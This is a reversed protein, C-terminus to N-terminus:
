GDIIISARIHARRLQRKILHPVNIKELMAHCQEYNGMKEFSEALWSYAAQEVRVWGILNASNVISEFKSQAGRYDKLGHLYVGHQYDLPIKFRSQMRPSLSLFSDPANLLVRSEKLLKEFRETSLPRCRQRGQECMNSLRIALRLRLEAFIAIVDMNEVTMSKLFENDQIIYSAEQVLKQAKNLSTQTNQSTLVWALAVKAKVETQVDRYQKAREHLWYSTEQLLKPANCLHAIHRIETYVAKIQEYHAEKKLARYLTPEIYLPLNNKFQQKIRGLRDFDYKMRGDKLFRLLHRLSEEISPNAAMVILTESFDEQQAFTDRIHAECWKYVEADSIEIAPDNGRQQAYFHRLSNFAWQFRYASEAYTWGRQYNHQQAAAIVKHAVRSSPKRNGTAIGSLDGDNVGATRALTAMDKFGLYAIAKNRMEKKNQNAEKDSSPM